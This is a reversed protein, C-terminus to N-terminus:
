CKLRGGHKTCQYRKHNLSPVGKTHYGWAPEPPYKKGKNKGWMASDICVQGRGRANHEPSIGRGRGCVNINLGKIKLKRHNHQNRCERCIANRTEVYVRHQAKITLAKKTTYAGPMPQMMRTTIKVVGCHQTKLAVGGFGTDYGWCKYSTDNTDGVERKHEPWLGGTGASCAHAPGQQKVWGCSEPINFNILSLAASASAVYFMSILLCTIASIISKNKV